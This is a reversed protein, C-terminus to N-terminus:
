QATNKHKNNLQLQKVRFSFTLQIESYYFFTAM